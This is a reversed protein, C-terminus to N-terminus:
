FTVIVDVFSRRNEVELLTKEVEILCHATQSHLDYPVRDLSKHYLENWTLPAQFSSFVLLGAGQDSQTAEHKRIKEPHQFKVM